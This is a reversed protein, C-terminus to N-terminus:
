HRKPADGRRRSPEAAPMTSAAILDGGNIQRSNAIQPIDGDIPLILISVTGDRGFRHILEGNLAFSLADIIPTTMQVRHSLERILLREDATRSPGSTSGDAVDNQARFAQV